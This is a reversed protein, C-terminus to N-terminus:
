QYSQELVEKMLTNIDNIETELNNKKNDLNDLYEVIEKQKSINLIYINLENFNYMSLATPCGNYLRQYQFNNKILLLLYYWLYSNLLININNSEISFANDHLWLKENLLMIFNHPSAGYRSIKCIHSKRNFDNTKFNKNKDGGGYVYYLGNEIHNKKTKREGRKHTTISGLKVIETENKKIEKEMYYKMRREIGKKLEELSKKQKVLDNLIELTQNQFEITPTPIELEQLDQPYVHPQASGKQINYIINLIIIYIIRM